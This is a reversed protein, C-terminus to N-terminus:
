GSGRCYFRPARVAPGGPFEAANDNLVNSFVLVNLSLLNTSYVRTCACLPTDYLQTFFMHPLYKYIGLSVSYQLVFAFFLYLHVIGKM